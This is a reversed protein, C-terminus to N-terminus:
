SSGGAPRSSPSGATARDSSRRPIPRARTSRRARGSMGDRCVVCGARVPNREVYRLAAVAHRGDMPSSGFRGQWLHVRWGERFNVMRSYRRHAEGIARRLGEESGPVVVLHIHNPMLCYARVEVGLERCFEAMLDIYAECDEDCLFATQRCTGRQTVGPAVVSAIRGM